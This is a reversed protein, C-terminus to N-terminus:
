RAQIQVCYFQGAGSSELTWDAPNDDSSFQVSEQDTLGLALDAATLRGAGHACYVFVTNAPLRWTMDGERYTLQHSCVTRRSMLNFDSIPGNILAAHTRVDGPFVAMNTQRDVQHPVGNVSLRVGQGSLLALTRDIGAFCSFDGDTVVQARSIRWVFNDLSAHEPFVAMEITTGAGNKWPMSRYDDPTLKNM